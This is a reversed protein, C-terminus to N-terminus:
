VQGRCKEERKREKKKKQPKHSKLERDPWQLPLLTRVEPGGASKRRTKKNVRKLTRIYFLAEWLAEPYWMSLQKM